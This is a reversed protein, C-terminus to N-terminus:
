EAGGIRTVNARDCELDFYENAIYTGDTLFFLAALSVVLVTWDIAGAAWWVIATGLFFPLLNALHKPLEQLAIWPAIRARIRSKAVSSNAIM